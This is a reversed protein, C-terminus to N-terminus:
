EQTLPPRTGRRMPIVTLRAVGVQGFDSTRSNM